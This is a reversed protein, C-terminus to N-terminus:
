EKIDGAYNTPYLSEDIDAEGKVCAYFNSILALAKKHAEAAMEEVTLTVTPERKNRYKPYPSRNKNLWDEEAREKRPRIFASVTRPARCLCEIGRILAYRIGTTDDTIRLYLRMLKLSKSATEAPLDMGFGPAVVESYYKAVKLRSADSINLNKYSKYGRVKGKIYDRVCIYDLGSEYIVHIYKHASKPYHAPLDLERFYIYSHLESDLAYHCLQGFLFPLITEPSETKAYRASKGMLEATNFSNHILEGLRNLPPKEFRMYFLLDPGQAGVLFAQKDKDAIEKLEIPLSEYVRQAFYCHVVNSPM